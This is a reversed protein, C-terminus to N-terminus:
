HGLEGGHKEEAELIRILENNIEISEEWKDLADKWGSFSYQVSENMDKHLELYEKRMADIDDRICMLGWLVMASMSGALVSVLLACIQYRSM